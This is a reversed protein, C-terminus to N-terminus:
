NEDYWEQKSCIPTEFVCCPHLPVVKDGGSMYLTLDRQVCISAPTTEAPALIDTCM